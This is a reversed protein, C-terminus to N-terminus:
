DNRASERALVAEAMLDLFHYPDDNAVDFTTADVQMQAEPQPSLPPAGKSPLLSGALTISLYQGPQRRCTAPCLLDAGLTVGSHTGSPQHRKWFQSQKRPYKPRAGAQGCPLVNNGRM